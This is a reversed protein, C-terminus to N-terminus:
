FKDDVVLCGVVIPHEGRAVLGGGIDTAVGGVVVRGGVMVAGAVLGGDVVALSSVVVPDGVM